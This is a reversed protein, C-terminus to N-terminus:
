PPAIATGPAIRRSALFDRARMVRRGEPQLELIRVIGGDGAAIELHDGDARVLTGPASTSITGTLATRHILVRSDALRVAVLPWPQLGRVLNHIRAAPETWAVAGEAKSLKSAYTVGHEPQPVEVARGEALADVTQVALVAGLEAIAREVEVSTEDPGIPRRGIVFMAGADLEKVVRMITVGTESDGEIVARQVPAAGRWRPLVSGHVNIMGLRPIQLLAEPLIKGYAAVVGLDPRVESVQRLFDENRLRDPQWVPIGSAAAVERTATPVTHHGRGKPKDPQSVVAAVEHRSAILARLTPVAFVPTGFYVIRLSGATVM